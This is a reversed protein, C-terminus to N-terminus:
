AHQSSGLGQLSFQTIHEIVDEIFTQHQEPSHMSRLIDRSRIFHLVQGTISSVCFSARKEGLGPSTKLILDKFARNIPVILRTAVLDGTVADPGMERYITQMLRDSDPSCTHSDFFSRIYATLIEELQASPKQRDLKELLALKERTISDLLNALVERYLGTKDSFHYNVSAVNSGSAMTIQRISVNEFGNALFLKTASEMLAARTDKINL